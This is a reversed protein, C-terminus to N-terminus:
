GLILYLKSRLKTVKRHPKRYIAQGETKLKFNDYYVCFLAAFCFQM